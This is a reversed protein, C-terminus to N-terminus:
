SSLEKMLLQWCITSAHPTFSVRQECMFGHQTDEIEMYRFRNKTPDEKILTNKIVKRDISPILPDTACCICTLKGLVSSLLEM